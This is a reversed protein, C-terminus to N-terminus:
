LSSCEEKYYTNCGNWVVMSDRAGVMVIKKIEMIGGYCHFYLITGDYFGVWCCWEMSNCVNLVKLRCVFLMFLVVFISCKVDVVRWSSWGDGLKASEVLWGDGILTEHKWRVMNECFFVKFVVKIDGM